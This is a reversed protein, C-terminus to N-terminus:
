RRARKLRRNTEIREKDYFCLVPDCLDPFKEKIRKRVKEAQLQNRFKKADIRSDTFLMFPGKVVTQITKDPNGNVNRLIFKTTAPASKETRTNGIGKYFKHGFAIYYFSGNPARENKNKPFGRFDRKSRKISM